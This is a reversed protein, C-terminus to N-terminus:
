PQKDAVSSMLSEALSAIVPAHSATEAPLIRAVFQPLLWHYVNQTLWIKTRGSIKDEPPLSKPNRSIDRLITKEAKYLLPALLQALGRANLTEPLDNIPPLNIM